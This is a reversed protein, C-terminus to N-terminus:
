PKSSPIKVERWFERFQLLRRSLNHFTKLSVSSHGSHNLVLVSMKQKVNWTASLKPPPTKYKWLHQLKDAVLYPIKWVQQLVLHCWCARHLTGAGAASCLRGNLRRLSGLSRRCSDILAGGLSQRCLRQGKSRRESRGLGWRRGGGRCDWPLLQHGATWGKKLRPRLHDLGDLWLRLM